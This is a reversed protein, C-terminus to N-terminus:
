GPTQGPHPWLAQPWARCVAGAKRLERRGAPGPGCLPPDSPRYFFDVAMSFELSEIAKQYEHTQPWIMMNFGWALFAKVKGEKIYEVIRNTQVDLNLEAFAPFDKNDLRHPRMSDMKKRLCFAPPGNAWPGGMGELPNSPMEVGGPVDIYGCIAPIM